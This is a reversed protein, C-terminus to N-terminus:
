VNRWHVVAILSVKLAVHRSRLLDIRASILLIFAETHLLLYGNRAQENWIYSDSKDLLTFVIQVVWNWTKTFSRKGNEETKRWRGAPDKSNTLGTPGIHLYCGDTGSLLWKSICVFVCLAMWLVWCRDCLIRSFGPHLYHLCAAARKLDEHPRQSTECTRAESQWLIKLIDGHKTWM